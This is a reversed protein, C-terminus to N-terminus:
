RVAHLSWGDDAWLLEHRELVDHAEADADTPVDQVVVLDVDNDALTNEGNALEGMLRVTDVDGDVLQGDVILYGPDVPAGPLMKLLPDLVPRDAVMRYNGPPWLLTRPHVENGPGQAWQDVQEVVTRYTSDMSVTAVDGVDRPLAPVSVWVLVLLSLVSVQPVWTRGTFGGVVTPVQALVAILGPVALVVFKQTDRVLGAGPVNEILWGTVALGPGTAMLAPVLVAALALWALPAWGLPPHDSVQTDSAAKRVKAAAAAVACAVAVAVMALVVGALTSVPALADRSAPVADANWIGGLGALAGLTGVWPESRAAFLEAGAADSLSASAGANVLAPILWPLALVAGVVATLLARIWRRGPTSVTCVVLSTVMGLILGTPTLACVVLVPLALLLSRTTARVILLALTPLLVGAAVVSWHGQLLREAVFPNWLTLAAALFAVPGTRRPQETRGTQGAWGALGAAGLAGVYGCVLMLVAVLLPPPIVPSLWALIADQPLARPLGDQGTALDNLAMTPPVSMDRLLLATTDGTRGVTVLFPWFVAGTLALCWLHLLVRRLRSRHGTAPM